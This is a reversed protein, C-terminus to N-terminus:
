EHREPDLRTDPNAEVNAYGHDRYMTRIVQLDELLQARNFYDGPTARVLNRLHRRGNIPEVEDGSEGREYIRLQRIRYRPGEDINISIEIGSRDPTLMVRKTSVAM